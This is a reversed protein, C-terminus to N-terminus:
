DKSLPRHSAIPSQDPCNPRKVNLRCAQNCRIASTSESISYGGSISYKHRM